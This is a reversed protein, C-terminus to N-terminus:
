GRSVEDTALGLMIAVKKAAEPQPIGFLWAALSIADGGKEGSSFDAWKGNTTNVAFSGVSHDGRRPNLAIYERGAQNGGPLWRSLIDPLNRLATANILAYDPPGNAIRRLITMQKDTPPHRRTRISGIFEIEWASLKHRECDALLQQLEPSTVVHTFGLDMLSCRSASPAVCAIQKPEHTGWHLM